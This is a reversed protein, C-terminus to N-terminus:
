HTRESRPDLLRKLGSAQLCDLAGGRAPSLCTKTRTGDGTSKTGRLEIAGSVAADATLTDGQMVGRAVATVTNAATTEDDILGPRALVQGARIPDDVLIPTRLVTASGEHTM